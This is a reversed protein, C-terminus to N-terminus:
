CKKLFEIVYEMLEIIQEKNKKPNKLDTNIKDYLEKLDELKDKSLSNNKNSKSIFNSLYTQFNNKVTPKKNFSSLYTELNTIATSVLSASAQVPSLKSMNALSTSPKMLSSVASVVSSVKDMDEFIKNLEKQNPQETIKDYNLIRLYISFYYYSNKSSLVSKEFFSVPILKQKEFSDSLYISLKIGENSFIIKASFSNKIKNNEKVNLVSHDNTQLYTKFSDFFLSDKNYYGKGAKELTKYFFSKNENFNNIKLDYNKNSYLLKFTENFDKSNVDSNYLQKQEKFYVNVDDFIIKYQNSIENWFYIRLLNFILYDKEFDGTKKLIKSNYELKYFISDQGYSFNLKANKINMSISKIRGFNFCLNDDLLRLKSLLENSFIKQSLLFKDTNNILELFDLENFLNKLINMLSSFEFFQLLEEEKIADVSKLLAETKTALFNYFLVSFFKKLLIDSSNLKIEETHILDNLNLNFSFSNKQVFLSMHKIHPYDENDFEINKMEFGFDIIKDLLVKFTNLKNNKLIHDLEKFFLLYNDDNLAKELFNILIDHMNKNQRELNNLDIVNSTERSFEKLLKHIMLDKLFYKRGEIILIEENLKKNFIDYSNRVYEFYDNFFSNSYNISKLDLVELNNSSLIENYFVPLSSIKILYLPFVDKLLFAKTIKLKIDCDFFNAFDQNYFKLSNSNNSLEINLLSKYKTLFFSFDLNDFKDSNFDDSFINKDTKIISKLYNFNDKIKGQNKRFYEWSNIAFVGQPMLLDIMLSYHFFKNCLTKMHVSFMSKTSNMLVDKAVLIFRELILISLNDDIIKSNQLLNINTFFNLAYEESDIGNEKFFLRINEEFANERQESQELNMLLSEMVNCYKEYELIRALVILIYNDNSDKIDKVFIKNDSGDIIIQFFAENQESCLLLKFLQQSNPSQEILLKNYNSLMMSNLRKLIWLDFKATQNSFNKLVDIFIFHKLVGVKPLSSFSITGDSAKTDGYLNIFSKCFIKFSEFYKKISSYSGDDAKKYFDDFNDIFKFNLLEKKDKSEKKEIEKILIEYNNLFKDFKKNLAM